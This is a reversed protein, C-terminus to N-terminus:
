GVRAIAHIGQGLVPKVSDLGGASSCRPAITGPEETLPRLHQAALGLRLREGPAPLPENWPRQLYMPTGDSLRCQLERLASLERVRVARAVLGSEGASVIRLHEPRIGIWAIAPSPDQALDVRGWDGGAERRKMWRVPLLNRWGLVRASQVDGPDDFVDATLGM